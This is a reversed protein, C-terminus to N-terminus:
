HTKEFIEDLVALGAQIEQETLKGYGLLLTPTNQATDILGDGLRYSLLGSLGIGQEAARRCIEEEPLKSNVQVLLHMGAHDGSIKKVWFRKKLEGLLYDHRSRYIGRMRNLHRGFHGDRIFERLIEQQMRPVTTSYFGCETKYKELLQPPLVMYSIRLSPAVSKSFTGLYIVKGNSDISQLSPIPKGRYRYESDYDDEILYRGEQESAWKLLELRQTMPMVSGLPFQHSPMMYILDPQIREADQRTMGTDRAEVTRVQYGMNCFTHYAQPYGPNEMLMTLGRGLLQALLIELYENGAGIIIDEVQCNVGRAQHLYSAIESRLEYEGQGDGALLLEERDDLLVNKSIKRWVNYPFSATNIAYPSFDIVRKIQRSSAAGGPNRRRAANRSGEDLQYLEKIDCAFFGRCAEARIYGEALLQDYALEVTSRSVSLNEALLRTSPLKEGTPIKGDIIENRIYKYIKEYLPAKAGGQLDVMIEIM